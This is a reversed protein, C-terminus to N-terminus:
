EVFDLMSTSQNQEYWVYCIQGKRRPASAVALAVQLPTYFTIYM